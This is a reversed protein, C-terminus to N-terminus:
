RRTSLLEFEEAHKSVVPKSVPIFFWRVCRSSCVGAFVAILPLLWSLPSSSSIPKATADVEHTSGPSNSQNTGSHAKVMTTGSHAEKHPFDLTTSNNHSSSNPESMIKASVSSAIASPDLTTPLCYPGALPVALPCTCVTHRGGSTGNNGDDSVHM